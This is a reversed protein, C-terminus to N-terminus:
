VPVLQLQSLVDNTIDISPANLVVHNTRLVLNIGRTQAVQSLVVRIIQELQEATQALTQVERQRDGFQRSLEAARTEIERQRDRQQQQNLQGRQAVFARTAEDLAQRERQEDQRLRNVRSRIANLLGSYPTWSAQIRDIDLVGIVPPPPPPSPALPPLQQISIPPPPPTAPAEAPPILPPTAPAQAQRPQAPQQAPRQQGAGQGGGQGPVFWQQQGQQQALVTGSAGGLLALALGFRAAARFLRHQM